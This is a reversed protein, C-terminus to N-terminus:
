IFGSRRVLPTLIMLCLTLALNSVRKRIEEYQFDNERKKELFERHIRLKAETTNVLTDFCEGLGRGVKDFAPLRAHAEPDSKLTELSKEALAELAARQLNAIAKYHHRLAARRHYMSQIRPNESKKVRYGGRGRGSVPAMVESEEPAERSTMLRGARGRGGRGRGRTGGRKVTTTVVTTGDTDDNNRSKTLLKRRADGLNDYPTDKSGMVYELAKHVVPSTTMRKPDSRNHVYYKVVRPEKWGTKSDPSEEDYVPYSDPPSAPSSPTSAVIQVSPNEADLLDDDEGNETPSPLEFPSEDRRRKAGLGIRSTKAIGALKGRDNSVRIKLKVILSQTESAADSNARFKRVKRPSRKENQPTAPPEDGDSASDDMGNVSNEEPDQFIADADFFRYRRPIVCVQAAKRKSGRTERKGPTEQEPQVSQARGTGHNKSRPPM